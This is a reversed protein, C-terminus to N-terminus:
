DQGSNGSEDQKERERKDKELDEVKKKLRDVEERLELIADTAMESFDAMEKLAESVPDPQLLTAMKELCILGRSNTLEVRDKKSVAM